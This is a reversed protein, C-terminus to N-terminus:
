EIIKICSWWINREEVQGRSVHIDSALQFCKLKHGCWIPPMGGCKELHPEDAFVHCGTWDEALYVKM